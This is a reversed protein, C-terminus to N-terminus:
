YYEEEDIWVEEWETDDYLCIKPVIDGQMLIGFYIELQSHPSKFIQGEEYKGESMGKVIQWLKM